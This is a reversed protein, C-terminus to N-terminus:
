KLYLLNPLVHLGTESAYLLLYQMPLWVSIGKITVMQQNKHTSLVITHMTHKSAEDNIICTFDFLDWWPSNLIILYGHTM